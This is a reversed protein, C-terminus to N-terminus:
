DTPSRLSAAVTRGLREAGPADDVNASRSVRAYEIGGHDALEATLLLVRGAVWSAHAGLATTCSGGLEALVAREATVAIRTDPDNLQGVTTILRDDARCEVALAGQGPAPVILTPDLMQAAADQLGLRQLGAAAVVVGALEGDRVLQLRTEVNGRVAVVSLDPRMRLLAAARRPSSTGVRAGQPLETLDGLLSFLVDSPNARAPVAAVLLGDVPATPLDKFSHVAVDITASLLADRLASVFVGPRSGELPAGPEDGEVRIEVLDVPQGTLETIAEAVPGAQARALRSSRTGLRIM